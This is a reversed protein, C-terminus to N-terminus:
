PSLYKRYANELIEPLRRYLKGSRSLTVLTTEATSLLEMKPNFVEYAFIIKVSTLEKIRTRITLEDDLHASKKFQTKMEVVPLTIDQDMLQKLDLGAERSLEVRAMEFWRIYNGHWVMGYIDTDSYYVKVRFDFFRSM